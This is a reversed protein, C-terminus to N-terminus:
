AFNCGFRVFYTVRLVSRVLRTDSPPASLDFCFCCCCGAHTRCALARTSPM